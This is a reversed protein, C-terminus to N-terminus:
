KGRAKKAARAAEIVPITPKFHELSGSFGGARKIAIKAIRLLGDTVKPFVPKGTTPKKTAATAKAGYGSLVSTPLGSSGKGALQQYLQRIGKDEQILRGFDISSRKIHVDNLHEVIERPTIKIKRGAKALAVMAIM